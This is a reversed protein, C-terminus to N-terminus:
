PLGSEAAAPEPGVLGDEIVQTIRIHAARWAERVEVTIQGGFHRELMWHVADGIVRVCDGQLLAERVAPRAALSLLGAFHGPDSLGAVAASMVSLLRTGHFDPRGSLLRRLRPRLSFLRCYFLQAAFVSQRRLESLTQELLEIQQPTVEGPTAAELRSLRPNCTPSKCCRATAARQPASYRGCRNHRRRKAVRVTRSPTSMPPELVSTATSLRSPRSRSRRRRSYGLRSYPAASSASEPMFTSASLPQPLRQSTPTPMGPNM